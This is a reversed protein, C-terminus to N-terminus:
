LNLKGEIVGLEFGRFDAALEPLSEMREELYNGVRLVRYCRRAGNFRGASSMNGCLVWYLM